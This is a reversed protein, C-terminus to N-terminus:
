PQGGAAGVDLTLAFRIRDAPMTADFGLTLSGAEPSAGAVAAALASARGVADPMAPAVLLGLAHRDGSVAQRILAAIHRLRERGLPTLGGAVSDFFGGAPLDVYLRTADAAIAVDGIPLATRLRGAVTEALLRPEGLSDGGDLAPDGFPAFYRHFSARLSQLVPAARDADPKAAAGLMIFFVLLLLELGLLGLLNADARATSVATGQFPRAERDAPAAL